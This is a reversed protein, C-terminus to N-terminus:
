RETFSLPLSPDNWPHRYCRALAEAADRPPEAVGWKAAFRQRNNGFWHRVHHAAEADLRITMSGHHYFRAGHVVRCSGGGLVVRVAFDNDEFYAPRFHEDFWGHREVTARRLMACAFNCGESVEGPDTLPHERTDIGSWLDVERHAPDQGFALLRDICEPELLVDNATLLIFESGAEFGARCGWNWAGAVSREMGPEFLVRVLLPCVAQVRERMEEAGIGHVRTFVVALEASAQCKLRSAADVALDILAPQGHSWVPMVVTLEPM